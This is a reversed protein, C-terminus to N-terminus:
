VNLARVRAPRLSYHGQIGISPTWWRFVADGHRAMASGLYPFAKLDPRVTIFCGRGLRFALFMSLVNGRGTRAIRAINCIFGALCARNPSRPTCEVVASAVYTPARLSQDGVVDERFVGSRRQCRWSLQSPRGTKSHPGARMRVLRSPNM